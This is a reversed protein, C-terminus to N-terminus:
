LCRTSSFKTIENYKSAYTEKNLIRDILQKMKKRKEKHVVSQANNNKKKKQMMKLRVRDGTEAKYIFNHSHDSILHSWRTVVNENNHSVLPDIDLRFSFFIGFLFLIISLMKPILTLFYLCFLYLLPSYSLFLFTDFMVNKNKTNQLLRYDDVRLKIYHTIGPRSCPM